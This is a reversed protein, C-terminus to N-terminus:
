YLILFRVALTCHFFLADNPKADRVLWGMAAIMNVRTPVRRPNSSEETMVLIDEAM